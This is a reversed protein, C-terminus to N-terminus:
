VISLTFCPCRPGPHRSLCSPTRPATCWCLLHRSRLSCPSRSLGSSRTSSPGATACARPSSSTALSASVSPRSTTWTTTTGTAAAMSRASRTTWNRNLLVLRSIEATRKAAYYACVGGAFSAGLLSLRAVGSLDRVKALAVRIDNLITTLTLEEQWGESEGHGRLDFRLSATGAAALGTALRAFFGGEERTVGGGHVLVVAKGQEHADPAVFTGTLRLGDLTRFQVLHESPM